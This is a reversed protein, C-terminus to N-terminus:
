VVLLHILAAAGHSTSVSSSHYNIELDWGSDRNAVFSEAIKASGLPCPLVKHLYSKILMKLIIIQSLKNRFKYDHSQLARFM